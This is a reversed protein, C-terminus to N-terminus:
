GVLFANVAARFDEFQESKLEQGRKAGFKALLAVAGARDKGAAKQILEPLGSKEYPVPDSTAPAATPAATPAPTPAAALTANAKQQMKLLAEAEDGSFVVEKSPKPDPKSGVKVATGPQVQRMFFDAAETYSGFTLTVQIM